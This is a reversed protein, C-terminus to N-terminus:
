VEEWCYKMILYDLRDQHEPTLEGFEMCSQREMVTTFYEENEYRFDKIVTIPVGTIFFDSNKFINVETSNTLLEGEDVYRVAMGGKSINVVQEVRTSSSNQVAIMLNNVKFRKHQRRELQVKEHLMSGVERFNKAM